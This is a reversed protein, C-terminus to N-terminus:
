ITKIQNHVWISLALTIWIPSLACVFLVIGILQWTLKENPSIELYQISFSLGFVLCFLIYLTM